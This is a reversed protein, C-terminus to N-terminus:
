RRLQDLINPDQIEQDRALLLVKSLIEGTKPDDDAFPLFLRGRQGAHVPVIFMAGGPMRHVGGSGLHVSYEGLQGKILVHQQKQRVNKLKLLDCLERLLNGRMEITSASAEPDVGGRHAVSVVLDMDRMVESFLRPPVDALKLPRPDNVRAFAVGELTWGEVEAPTGTAFTFTVWASLSLEHFTKRIGAEDNVSWGRGGWLAMAQRPQVQHGAYRLSPNGMKKEAATLVYLERFVQKFPQVIERRFADHQWLHWQGAELLDHPHALRLTETKKVPELKGAHNRLAQGKKEPYGLIGEGVVVLKALMPALLPHHMLQVLEAASFTDGRCMMDELGRRMRSQSRTLEKKREVLAAIKKDKRQPAPISKVSQGKRTVNWEIQGLADVALSVEVDGARATVGDLLDACGAAEMAWQFRIPDPYGATRALNALGVEAARIAGERSLRSLGRAYRHYDKLVQYRSACSRTAGAGRPCRCCGWPM